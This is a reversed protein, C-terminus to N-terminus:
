RWKWGYHNFFTFASRVFYRIHLWGKRAAHGGYHVIRAEPYYILKGHKGLELSLAFDEFYLFYREDFGGVARLTTGRCLMFCGSILQAPATLKRDVMNRCEYLALRKDFRQRLRRPALGRLGLDLVSPYSKCLYQCRGNIDGVEPSLAVTDPNRQLYQIGRLLTEPKLVVDPNMMLHYDASSARLVLNHARGYGLNSQNVVTRIQLAERYPAAVQELLGPEQGNDILVTELQLGLVEQALACADQLSALLANLEDPDIRYTVISVCLSPAADAPLATM